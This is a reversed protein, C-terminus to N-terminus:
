NNQSHEFEYVYFLDILRHTGYGIAMLGLSIALWGLL